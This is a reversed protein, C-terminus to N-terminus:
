INLPRDSYYVQFYFLWSDIQPIRNLRGVWQDPSIILIGARRKVSLNSLKQYSLLIKYFLTQRIFYSYKFSHAQLSVILAGGVVAPALALLNLEIASYQGVPM